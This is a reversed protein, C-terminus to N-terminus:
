QRPPTDDRAPPQFRIPGIPGIPGICATRDWQDWTDWLDWGNGSGCACRCASVGDRGGTAVGVRWQRERGGGTVIDKESGFQIPSWFGIMCGGTVIM